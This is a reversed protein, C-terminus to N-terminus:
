SNTVSADIKGVPREQAADPASGCLPIRFRFRTGTGATSDVHIPSAHADLIQKAIALGLGSGGSVRSRSKEVRYFRDFIHPLDAEPIGIGNDEVNVEIAGPRPCLRLHVSGDNPTYRLANDVLNSLAREIMGIDGLAAPLHKPFTGRLRIHKELAMPRFKLLVDQVLEALSFPEPKPAIQRTELKSLEFLESVLTGLRTVNDYIIELYRHREAERLEAGKMLITELYGQMSALPGRLDHSVNEVLERRLTDARQIAALHAEMKAAMDNFAHGLQGIEDASGADVRAKLDGREFARVTAAMARVRRTLLFFLGMGVIGILLFSLLLSIMGNRIIYSEAVMAAITEYQAGGLILYLYGPRAGIEIASASFPKRGTESRPDDGLIPLPQRADGSLLASIPATDVRERRVPKDGSFAVRGDRELVYIEIRPNYLMMDHMLAGLADPDMGSALAPQFERALDKALNRNLSQESERAFDRASRAGVVLQILGFVLLLVLFIASIRGYLSSLIAKM